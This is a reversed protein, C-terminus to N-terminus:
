SGPEEFSQPAPVDSPQAPHSGGLRQPSPCAQSAPLALPAAPGRGWGWCCGATRPACAHPPLVATLILIGPVDGRGGACAASFIVAILPPLEAQARSRSPSNATILRASLLLRRPGREPMNPIPVLEAACRTKPPEKPAQWPPLQAQPPQPGRRGRAPLDGRHHGNTPQGSTFRTRNLTEAGGVGEM